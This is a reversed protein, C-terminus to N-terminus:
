KMERVPIYLTSTAPHSRLPPGAVPPGVVKVGHIFTESGQWTIGIDAARLNGDADILDAPVMPHPAATDRHPRHPAPRDVTERVLRTLNTIAEDRIQYDPLLGDCVSRIKENDVNMDGLQNNIKQVMTLVVSYELEGQSAPSAPPSSLPSEMVPQIHPFAVELDEDETAPM